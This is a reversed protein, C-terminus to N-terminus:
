FYKAKIRFFRVENRLSIIATVDLFPTHARVVGPTNVTHPRYLSPLYNLLLM